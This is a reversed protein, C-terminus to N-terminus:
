RFFLHVNFVRQQASGGHYRRCVARRFRIRGLVRGSCCGAACAIVSRNVVCGVVDVAPIGRCGIRIGAIDEVDDIIIGVAIVRYVAIVSVVASICRNRAIVVLERVVAVIGACRAGVAIVRATCVRVAIIRSCRGCCRDIFRNYKLHPGGINSYPICGRRQFHRRTNRLFSIGDNRDTENRFRESCFDRPVAFFM